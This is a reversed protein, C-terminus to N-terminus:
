LFFISKYPTFFDKFPSFNIWILFYIFFFLSILNINIIKKYRSLSILHGFVFITIPVFFVIVRSAAFPHFYAIPILLIGILGTAFWLKYEDYQKFFNGFYVLILFSLCILALRFMGGKPIIPYSKDTYIEYSWIIKDIWNSVIQIDLLYFLLFISILSSVCFTLYKLLKMLNKEYVLYFLLYIISFKHFMTAIIIFFFYKIFRGNTLHDISYLFISIAIAQRVFNISIPIFLIPISILLVFFPNKFKKVYNQFFFILISILLFNVFFYSLRFKNCIIIISYYLIEIQPVGYLFYKGDMKNYLNMYGFYDGGIYYRSGLILILFFISIFWFKEKNPKTVNPIKAFLFFLSFLFFYYIM